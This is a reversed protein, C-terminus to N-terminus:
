PPRQLRWARGAARAGARRRTRARGRGAQERDGAADGAVGRQRRRRRALHAHGEEVDALAVRRQDLEVARRHEDVGPRRVPRDQLTELLGADFRSSASISVWASASWSPAAGSTMARWLGRRITSPPAPQGEARGACAGPRRAGRRARPPHRGRGPLRDRDAPQAELHQPRRALPRGRAVRVVERQDRPELDARERHQEDASASLWTVCASASSGTSTSLTAWWPLASGPRGASSSRSLGRSAAISTPSFVYPWGVGDVSAASLRATGFTTRVSLSPVIRRWATPSRIHTSHDTRM